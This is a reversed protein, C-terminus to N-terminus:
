KGVCEKLTTIETGLEGLVLQQLQESLITDIGLEGNPFSSNPTQRGEKTQPVRHIHEGGITVTATGLSIFHLFNNKM